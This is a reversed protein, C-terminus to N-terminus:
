MKGKLSDVAKIATIVAKTTLESSGTAKAVVHVSGKLTGIDAPGKGKYQDMFSAQRTPFAHPCSMELTRIQEVRSNAANLGIVWTHTCNPEYVGKQVVAFRQAKGKGDKSYFIEINRGEVTARTKYAKSTGLANAVASGLKEFEVAKASEIQAFLALTIISCRVKKMESEGIYFSPIETEGEFSCPSSRAFPSPTFDM